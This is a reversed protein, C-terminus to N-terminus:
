KFAELKAETLEVNYKDLACSEAMLRCVYKNEKLPM